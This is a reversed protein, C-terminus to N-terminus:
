KIEEIQKILSRIYTDSVNNIDSKDYISLLSIDFLEDTRKNIHYMIVRAGGSKGKGKSAIAMRVKYIGGGLSSGQMPKEKLDSLLVNYDEEFSKYKKALKKAMREFEPTVHISVKM